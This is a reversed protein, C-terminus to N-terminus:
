NSDSHASCFRANETSTLLRYVAGLIGGRGVQAHNPACYLFTKLWSESKAGPNDVLVFGCASRDGCKAMYQPWPGSLIADGAKDFLIIVRETDATQPQFKM